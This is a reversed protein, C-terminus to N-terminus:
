SLSKSLPESRDIINSQPVVPERTSQPVVPERTSQPVVPERTSQPVIPERSAKASNEPGVTEALPTEKASDNKKFRFFRLSRIKELFLRFKKRKSTM